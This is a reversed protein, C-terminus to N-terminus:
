YWVVASVVDLLVVVVGAGVGDLVVRGRRCWLTSPPDLPRIPDSRFKKSEHNSIRHWPSSSILTTCILAALYRLTAPVSRQSGIAFAQNRGFATAM